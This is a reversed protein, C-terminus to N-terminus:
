YMSTISVAIGKLNIKAKSQVILYALQPVYHGPLCHIWTLVSQLLQIIASSFIITMLDGVKCSVVM